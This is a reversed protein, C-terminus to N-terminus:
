WPTNAEARRRLARKRLYVESPSQGRAPRAVAKPDMAKSLRKGQKNEEIITQLDRM